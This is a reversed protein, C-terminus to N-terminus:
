GRELMKRVDAARYRLTVESTRGKAQRITIRILAYTALSRLLEYFSTYSITPAPPEPEPHLPESPQLGPHQNENQIM